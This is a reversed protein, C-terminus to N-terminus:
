QLGLRKNIELVEILTNKSELANEAADVKFGYKMAENRLCSLYVLAM